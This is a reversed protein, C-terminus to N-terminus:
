VHIAESAAAFFSFAVATSFTLVQTDTLSGIIFVATFAFVAFGLPSDRGKWGRQLMVLLLWCLAFLGLIGYSVTVHLFSNHPHDIFKISKFEKQLGPSHKFGDTGIGLVPSKKIESLATGWMHLRSGLSTDVDGQKYLRFDDAAKAFRSNVVPFAFLVAVIIASVALITLIHRQGMMNYVMFPALVIFALYGSRGGIYGITLFYLLMSFFYITKEGKGKARSAYFSGILIGTTLFLAYPIHLSSGVLLGTPQGNKLPFVGALQLLSVFCNLALGALFLKIIRDPKKQARIVTMAAIAYLWFRAKLAVNLGDAPTYLLGLWPLAVLLVAPILIKVKAMAASDQLFKGSFIWVALIFIGSIETPLTTLPMFFFVGCCGLWLLAETKDKKLFDM